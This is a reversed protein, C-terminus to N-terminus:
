AVRIKNGAFVQDIHDAYQANEPFALLQARTKGHALAVGDFTGLSSPFPQVTEFIPLNQLSEPLPPVTMTAGIQLMRPDLQPNADELFKVIAPNDVEYFFQALSWFTNGPKITWTRIQGLNDLRPAMVEGIVSWGANEFSTVSYSAPQGTQDDRLPDHVIVGDDYGVILLVHGAPQAKSADWHYPNGGGLLKLQRYDRVGTYALHGRDIITQVNAFTGSVGNVKVDHEALFADIRSGSELASVDSGSNWLETFQYMIKEPDAGEQALPGFKYTADIMALTCEVCRDGGSGTGAKPNSMQSCKAVGELTKGM